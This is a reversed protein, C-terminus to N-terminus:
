RIVITIPEVITDILSPDPKPVPRTLYGLLALHVAGCVQGAIYWGSNDDAAADNYGIGKRVLITIGFTLQDGWGTGFAGADRFWGDRRGGLVRDWGLVRETGIVDNALWDWSDLGSPDKLNTPSNAVYRYLNTDQAVFGIPDERVFRGL